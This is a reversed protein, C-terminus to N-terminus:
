NAGTAPTASRMPRLAVFDGSQVASRSSLIKMMAHDESATVVVGEGVAVLPLGPAHLDRYIALRVGPTVSQDRGRDIVMFDGAAGLWREGAGWLVRALSSFDAEGVVTQEDVLVPETFPELYDGALVGTCAMEVRAIATGNNVAVIRVWGSTQPTTQVKAMNVGYGGFLVSRRLFYRQDISLGADAGGSLVVLEGTGFLRRDVVDQGGLLHIPNVPTLAVVPPPACAQALQAASM